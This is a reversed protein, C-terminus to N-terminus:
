SINQSLYIMLEDLTHFSSSENTSLEKVQWNGSTGLIVKDAGSDVNFGRKNLAVTLWKVVLSDESQIGINKKLVRDSTRYIRGTNQDLKLSSQESILDSRDDMFIEEPLIRDAGMPNLILMALSSQCYVDWDHGSYIITKDENGALNNLLEVVEFKSDIDLQSTPEDLLIVPTQQALAWAIYVKKKQGDSLSCLPREFFASAGVQECFHHCLELEEKASLQKSGLSYRALSLLDCVKINEDYVGSSSVYSFVQAKEKLSLSGVIKNEWSIEGSIVSNFGMISELLTTKGVGNSGMLALSAGKEISVNLNKIIPRYDHGICVNKLNIM